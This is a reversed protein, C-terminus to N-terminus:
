LGDNEMGFHDICSLTLGWFKMEVSLYMIISFVPQMTGYMAICIYVHVHIYKNTEKSSTTYQRYISIDIYSSKKCMNCVKIQFWMCYNENNKYFDARINIWIM